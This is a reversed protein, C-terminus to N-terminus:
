PLTSEALEKAEDLLKEAEAAKGSQILPGVQQMRKHIEQMRRQVRKQMAQVQGEVDKIKRSLEPTLGRPGQPGAAVRKPREGPSALQTRALAYRKRMFDKMSAVIDDYDENKRSTVRRNPFPDNKLDKAILAYKKDIISCLRDPQFYKELIEQAIKRYRSLLEPDSIIRELLPNPSSARPIPWAANWDALVNIRGFATECFGVDLDWPIYRWRNQKTDLYLYYNHPQSGTLQDFAGSFLMVATTRLFSDVELKSELMPRFGSADTRNVSRILEVLQATSEKAAKNKPEFTKKYPALDDGIFQLNCGPGGEDVKFLPGNKDPLHQEIFTDDIREVNVYIGHFEGNLYLKAFNCRHTTVGLDSLIETMIQESFLSGFQVGNDLSIRQLGAFRKAEDYKDFKVLFSRKHRQNPSSSSNGKYRIGVNAIKTGQWEFAGRGYIRKPLMEGMRDLERKAVRLHITQVVSPAYFKAQAAANESSQGSAFNGHATLLTVLLFTIPLRFRM